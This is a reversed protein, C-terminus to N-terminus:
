SPAPRFRECMLVASEIEDRIAVAHMAKVLVKHVGGRNVAELVVDSSPHATFLIRIARPFRERVLGLLAVGDMGPMFQDCVIVDVHHRELVQLAHLASKASLAELECEEVVRAFAERLGDDDDVILVVGKGSVLRGAHAPAKDLLRSLAALLERTAYPKQVFEANEPLPRARDLRGSIFLAQMQPRFRQLRSLVDRGDARPLTLDALLVQIPGPHRLALEIADAGDAAELVELGEAELIRRLGGRLDADDEVVLVTSPVRPRSPEPEQAEATGLALPLFIQFESGRGPESEVLFVGQLQGVLARAVALGLGRGEGRPKTTFFPEFIRAQTAADMGIGSDKISIVAYSGFALASALPHAAGIAANRVVLELSGTGAMADRANQAVILLVQELQERSAAVPLPGVPLQISCEVGAGLASRLRQDLGRVVETVNVPPTGGSRDVTAVTPESTGTDRLAALLRAGQQAAGLAVQLDAAQQQPLEGQAAFGGYIQITALVNNLDHLLDGPLAAPERPWPGTRSPAFDLLVALVEGSDAAAPVAQVELEITEGSRHQVNLRSRVIGGAQLAERQVALERAVSPLTVTLSQGVMEALTYGLLQKAGTSWYLLVGSAGVAAFPQSTATL